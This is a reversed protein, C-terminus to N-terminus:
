EQVPAFPDVYLLVIIVDAEPFLEEASKIAADKTAMDNWAHYMRNHIENDREGLPPDFPKPKVEFLLTIQKQSEEGFLRLVLSEQKQRASPSVGSNNHAGFSVTRLYGKTPIEKRDVPHGVFFPSLGALERVRNLTDIKAALLQHRHRIWNAEYALWCGFVATALLLARLSFRLWRRIPKTELANPQLAVSM